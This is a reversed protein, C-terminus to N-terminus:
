MNTNSIYLVGGTIFGASVGGLFGLYSWKALLISVLTGTAVSTTKLTLDQTTTIGVHKKLDRDFASTIQAHGELNKIQTALDKRSLMGGLLGMHLDLRVEGNSYPKVILFCRELLSQLKSFSLIKKLENPLDHAKIEKWSNDKLNKNVFVNLTQFETFIFKVREGNRAKFTCTQMKELPSTVHRSNLSYYGQCPDM